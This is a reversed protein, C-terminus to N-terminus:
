DKSNQKIRPRHKKKYRSNASKLDTLQIKLAQKDIFKIRDNKEYDTKMLVYYVKIQNVIKTISPTKENSMERVMIYLAKKNFNEINGRDRFLTLVANAIIQDKKRKFYKTLYYDMHNVFIDLYSNIYDKSQLRHTETSIDRDYDLHEIDVENLVQQYKGKARNIFYNRCVVNFYSFAKAIKPDYNHMQEILYAIADNKLDAISCEFKYYKGYHILNEALKEFSKKIHKCYLDNRINEDDSLNYQIIANETEKPFYKKDVNFYPIM